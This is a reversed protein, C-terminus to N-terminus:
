KGSEKKLYAIVDARRQADTLRFGMKAGPVFGQPNTLWKDLKAADWTFKAKKLAPSYAFDQVSGVKRGFVGRHAPGVISADLSHCGTCNTEYVKAGRAADGSLPATKAAAPQAAIAAALLAITLSGASFLTSLPNLVFTLICAGRM